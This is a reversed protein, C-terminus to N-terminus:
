ILGVDCVGGILEKSRYRLDSHVTGPTHCVVKVPSRQYGVKVDIEAQNPNLTQRSADMVLVDQNGHDGPVTQM